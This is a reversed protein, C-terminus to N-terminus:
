LVYSLAVVIDICICSLDPTGNFKIVPSKIILEKQFSSLSRISFFYTLSLTTLASKDDAM